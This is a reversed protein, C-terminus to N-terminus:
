SADSFEGIAERVVTAATGGSYGRRMLMSSLRRAKTADDYRSLSPLKRHVLARARESEGEATLQGLAEDILADAVGKRRLEQRLVPRAAGRSRHRSEVWSRAFEADDILGVEVFRDLVADAVEQPVGRERLTVALEHRTRPALELRRLVIARAVSEPDAEPQLDAPSGPTPEGAPRRRPM